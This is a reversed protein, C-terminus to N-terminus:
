WGKRQRLGTIHAVHHRCHWSYLQLTYDLTIKGREPHDMTRAWDEHGLGGLLVTWRTHLGEVLSLSAEAEATRGDALAAWADQDYPKIRPNDETLALKFRAFANLHSDALHHVVQRATWGGERYPTDLRERSLGAVAARLRAPLERIDRVCSARDEDTPNGRYAFKGIPHSLTNEM